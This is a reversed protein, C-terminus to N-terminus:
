VLFVKLAETAGIQIESSLNGGPTTVRISPAEDEESKERIKDASKVRDAKRLSHVDRLINKIDLSSDRHYRPVRKEQKLNGLIKVESQEEKRETNERIEYFAILGRQDAGLMFGAKSPSISVITPEAHIQFVESDEDPAEIM